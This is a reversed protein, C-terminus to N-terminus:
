DDEAVEVYKRSVGKSDMGVVVRLSGAGIWSAVIRKVRTKDQLKNLDLNMAKAVAGGVWDTAQSNERWTGGRIIAAAKEFDRGTVGALADPWQWNTAVGVSDGQRRNLDLLEQISDLKPGNGLDVSWLHFWDAKEAAPAMNQKDIYTRYYRRRREDEIGAKDAEEKTMRNFVRVIRAADVLASAGRGSEATVEQDGKRTHHTLRVAGNAKDSIYAWEKVVRDIANNDNEPVQHSSVFPDAMLVDIQLELATKILADVMPRVIFFGNKDQSAIVLPTDRGHNVFLYGNLDEPTLGYHLAAGMVRRTIEEAPDELSWLWVKLRRVPTIGLLPKGSCMALAEAISQTTKAMGGPSLDVSVQRRMLLNGYLWDRPPITKPDTWQFAHAAVTLDPTPKVTM